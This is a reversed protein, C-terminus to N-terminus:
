ESLDNVSTIRIDITNPKLTFEAIFHLNTKVLGVLIENRVLDQPSVFLLTDRYMIFDRPLGMEGIEEPNCEQIKVGKIDGLEYFTDKHFSVSGVRDGAKIAVDKLFDFITKLDEITIM